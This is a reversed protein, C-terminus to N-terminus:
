RVSRSLWAHEHELIRPYKEEILRLLAQEVVKNAMGDPVSPGFLERIPLAHWSSRGDKRVKKHRTTQERVFVGVHGSPMRAIYAGAILKRGNLVNVSVGKSTARAGYQMLPVPRGSAVVSARLNGRTARIVRLAKKVDGVKLGYGAKRVERAAAVKVQDVTKNLARVVADPMERAAGLLELVVSQANSKVNISFGAM